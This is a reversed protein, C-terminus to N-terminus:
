SNRFLLMMLSIPVFMGSKKIDTEYRFFFSPPFIHPIEAHYKKAVDAIDSSDTSVIVRDFVNSDYATKISYSILPSGNIKIINKNPVRNSGGRAPIICLFTKKM